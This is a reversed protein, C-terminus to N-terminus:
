EARSNEQSRLSSGVASRPARARKAPLRLGIRAILNLVIGFESNGLDNRSKDLREKVRAADREIQTLGRKRALDSVSDIFVILDESALAVNISKVLEEESKSVVSLREMNEDAKEEGTEFFSSQEPIVSPTWEEPTARHKLDLVLDPSCQSLFDDWHAVSKIPIARKEHEHFIVSIKNERVLRLVNLITGPSKGDWIMIGFDAEAAMQRDKAAYFQFGKVDKTPIVKHTPWNGLNNRCEDGSCFVTVNRYGAELLHRQVAKDAGNADGLIIRHESRIVSNLREKVHRSLRSIHRSGGIFATNSL